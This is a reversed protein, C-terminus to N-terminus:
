SDPQDIIFQGIALVGIWVDPPNGAEPTILPPCWPLGFETLVDDINTTAQQVM